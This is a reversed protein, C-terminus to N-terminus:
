SRLYRDIVRHMHLVNAEQRPNPRLERCGRSRMGVQVGALNSYDQESIPDWKWTSWDDVVQHEPLRWDKEPDPWALVIIDKIASHPDIGNPRVRFLIASGPYVPGIVNPFWLFDEASTMQEDALGSVDLGRSALLARRRAQFTELLDRGEDRPAAIVEEVLAREERLFAGGLGAVLGRLIAAEDYGGPELRLRPSPRLARRAGPLRGYRAHTEFREYEIAVDDVWPLTQPHTGQVHYGENFADVVAKWNAPLVTTRYGRLRMRELHHGALLRPIPDLFDLLPEADLDMNIFVFGGWCEARVAGLRIDDPLNEFEHRDVVHLARGDLAYRWGHYPCRIVGDEFHGCGAGLRMGRHRCTNYFARVRGDEARLVLISQDGIVYEVFDGPKELEEERCAIQWVRPWLREMELELFAQSVYREKPLMGDNRVFM